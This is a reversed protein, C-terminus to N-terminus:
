LFDKILIELSFVNLWNMPVHMMRSAFFGRIEFFIWSLIQMISWWNNDIEHLSIKYCWMANVKFEQSPWHWRLKSWCLREWIFLLFPILFALFMGLGSHLKLDAWPLLNECLCESIHYTVTQAEVSESVWSLLLTQWSCKRWFVVLNSTM